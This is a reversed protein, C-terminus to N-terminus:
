PDSSRTIPLDFFRPIQLSPHDFQIIFFHVQHLIKSKKTSDFSFHWHLHWHCSLRSITVGLHCRPWMQTFLDVDKHLKSRFGCAFHILIETHKRTLTKMTFWINWTIPQSLTDNFLNAIRYEKKDKKFNSIEQICYWLSYM